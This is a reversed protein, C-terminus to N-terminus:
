IRTFEEVDIVHSGDTMEAFRYRARAFFRVLGDDEFRCESIAGSGQRVRDGVSCLSMKNTYFKTVEKGTEGDKIIVKDSFRTVEVKQVTETFGFAVFFVIAMLKM